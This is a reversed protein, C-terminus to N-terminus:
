LLPVVLGVAAAAHVYELPHAKTVAVIRVNSKLGENAQVRAIEDEVRRLNTSLATFDMALSFLPVQVDSCAVSHLLM